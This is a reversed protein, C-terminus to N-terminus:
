GRSRLWSTLQGGFTLGAQVAVMVILVILLIDVTGVLQQLEAIAGSYDVDASNGPDVSSALADIKGGISVAGDNVAKVVVQSDNSADVVDSLSDVSDKLADISTQIDAISQSYDVQQVDEIIPEVDEIVEETLQEEPM